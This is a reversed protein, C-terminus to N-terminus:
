AGLISHRGDIYIRSRGQYYATANGLYGAPRDSGLPLARNERTSSTKFTLGLSLGEYFHFVDRPQFQPEMTKHALFKAM